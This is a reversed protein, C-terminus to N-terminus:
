GVAARQYVYEDGARINLDESHTVKFILKNGTRNITGYIMKGNLECQNLSLDDGELNAYGSGSGRRFFSLEISYGGVQPSAEKIEIYTADEDAVEWKGLYMRDYGGFKSPDRFDSGGGSVAVYKGDGFYELQKLVRVYGRRDTEVWVLRPVYKGSEADPIDFEYLDEGINVNFRVAKYCGEGDVPAYRVLEVTADGYPESFCEYLVPQLYCEGTDSKWFFAYFGRSIPMWPSDGVREEPTREFIFFQETSSNTSGFALYGLRTECGIERLLLVDKDEVQGAFLQFTEGGNANYLEEKVSNGSSFNETILTISDCSNWNGGLKSIGFAGQAVTGDDMDTFTFSSSDKEFFLKREAEFEFGYFAPIQEWEGDLFTKVDDQSKFGPYKTSSREPGDGSNGSGGGTCAALFLILMCILVAFIKKM